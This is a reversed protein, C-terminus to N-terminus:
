RQHEAMLIINEIKKVLRPLDEIIILFPETAILNIIVFDYGESDPFVVFLDDEKINSKLDDLKGHSSLNKIISKKEAENEPLRILTDYKEALDNQNLRNKIDRWEVDEKLKPGLKFM